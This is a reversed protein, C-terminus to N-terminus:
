GNARREAMIELAAAEMVRLGAFVKRKHKPRTIGRMELVTPVAAYDLGTAGAMGTRWQTQLDIFCQLTTWNEPYILVEASKRLGEFMEPAAGMM